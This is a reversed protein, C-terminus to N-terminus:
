VSDIKERKRRRGTLRGRSEEEEKYKRWIRDRLQGVLDLEM